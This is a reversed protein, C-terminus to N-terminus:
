DAGARRAPPPSGVLFVRQPTAITELTVGNAALARLLTVGVSVPGDKATDGATQWEVLIQAAGDTQELNRVVLPLEDWEGQQVIVDATDGPALAVEGWAIAGPPQPQLVTAVFGIRAEPPFELTIALTGSYMGTAAQVRDLVAFRASVATKTGYVFADALRAELHNQSNVVRVEVPGPAFDPSTPTEVLFASGRGLPEPLVRASRNGFWVQVDTTLGEGSLAVLTGGEAPGTHPEVAALIPAGPPPVPSLDAGDLIGDNDTDALLPSTEGLDHRGNWNADEMGDPIGDLDTDPSLTDTEHPDRLGNGSTDEVHDLLGDQDLDSIAKGSRALWRFLDAAFRRNAARSMAATELPTPAALVAVRGHGYERAFFVADARQPDPGPVIVDQPRAARLLAGGTIPFNDWHRSLPTTEHPAFTGSVPRDADITIGLPSLWQTLPRAAEPLHEGLLLLAGGNVVYELAAQRTVAGAAAAKASLVVVAYRSLPKMVPVTTEEQVFLHPPSALTEALPRFRRPDSADRISTEEPTEWIWLLRQLDTSAPRVHVALEVRAEPDGSTNLVEVPVTASRARTPDGYRSPNISLYLYAPRLPVTLPQVLLWPPLQSTVVRWSGGADNDTLMVAQVERGIAAGSFLRTYPLELQRAPPGDARLAQSPLVLLDVVVGSQLQIVRDPADTTTSLLHLRGAEAVILKDQAWRLARIPHVFPVPPPGPRGERWIELNRGVAVAVAPAGPAPAVLPPDAAEAFSYQEERQLSGEVVRYRGVYAFNDGPTHTALWFVEGQQAIGREAVLGPAQVWSEVELTGADLAFLRTEPAGQPTDFSYGSLALIITDGKAAVVAAAPREELIGAPLPLEQAEIQVRGSAVDRVHLVARGEDTSCVVALRGRPLGFALLPSGPLPYAAVPDRWPATVHLRVEHRGAHSALVALLPSANPPTVFCAARLVELAESRVLAERVHRVPATQFTSVFSTSVDGFAGFTPAYRTSVVAFSGTPHAFLPGNLSIGPLSSPASIRVDAPLWAAEQAYLAAAQRTASLANTIVAVRQAAASCSLLAGAIIWALVQVRV